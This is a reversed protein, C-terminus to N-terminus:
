PVFPWYQNNWIITIKFVWNHWKGSLWFRRMSTMYVLLWVFVFSISRKCFTLCPSNIVPPKIIGQCNSASFHVLVSLDRQWILLIQLYLIMKVNQEYLVEFNYLRHYKGGSKALLNQLITVSNVINNSSRKLKLKEMQKFSYQWVPCDNQIM